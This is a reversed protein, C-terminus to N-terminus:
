RVVTVSGAIWTLTQAQGAGDYGANQAFALAQSGAALSSFRLTLLTGSGSAGAAEGLQTLGIVLRGASVEALQLSTQGGGPAGLFSGEAVSEFDLLASPFTLDFAVGYLNEVQNAAVELVLSTTSGGAGQRLFVSRAGPSSAPTFTVGAQPQTPGGGGGGGGGCGAATWTAATIALAILARQRRRRM